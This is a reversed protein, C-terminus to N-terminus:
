PAFAKLMQAVAERGALGACTFGLLLLYMIPRPLVYNRGTFIDLRETLVDLRKEIEGMGERREGATRLAANEAESTRLVRCEERRKDCWKELSDYTVPDTGSM